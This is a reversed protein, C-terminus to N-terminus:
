IKKCWINEITKKEKLIKWIGDYIPVQTRPEYLRKKMTLEVCNKIKNKYTYYTSLKKVGNSGFNWIGYFTPKPKKKKSPKVNKIM